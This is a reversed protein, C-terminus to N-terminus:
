PAQGSSRRTLRPGRTGGCACWCPRHAPVKRVRVGPFLCLSVGTGPDLGPCARLPTSPGAARGACAVAIRNAVLLPSRLLGAHIGAEHFSRRVGHPSAHSARLASRRGVPGGSDAVRCRLRRGGCAGFARYVRFCRCGLPASVHIKFPAVLEFILQRRRAVAIRSAVLFPSRLLRAHIGAEHFPRRVGHPSAHSARLASRRVGFAQGVHGGSDAVRWQM